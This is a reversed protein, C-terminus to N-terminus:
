VRRIGKGRPLDRIRIAVYGDFRKHPLFKSTFAELENAAQALNKTTFWRITVDAEILQEGELAESAARALSAKTLGKGRLSMRM